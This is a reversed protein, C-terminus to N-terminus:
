GRQNCPGRSFHRHRQKALRGLRAASERVQGVSGAASELDGTDMTQISDVILLAPNMQRAYEAIIDVDTEALIHLQPAIEGLREARLKVQEPSEEGTAYLVAGFKAAALNGVQLLLTSKGIGPDGGLLVVSGPVVGGGLVRNFEEMPIQLRRHQVNEVQSPPMPPEGRSSPIRSLTGGTEVRELTEVMSNWEGCSPCRGYATPYQGGCQQCVFKTHAKPM